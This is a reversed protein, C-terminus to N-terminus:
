AIVYVMCNWWTDGRWKMAADSDGKREWVAYGVVRGEGEHGDDGDDTIAVHFVFGPTVFRLKHRRLFLSRFQDPYNERYPNTYEYLEDNWLCPVSLSATSSFDSPTAPRIHM